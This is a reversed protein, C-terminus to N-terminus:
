FFLDKNGYFIGRRYFLIIKQNSQNSMYNYFHVTKINDITLILFIEVPYNEIKYM